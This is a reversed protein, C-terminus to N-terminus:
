PGTLLKTQLWSEVWNATPVSVPKAASISKALRHRSPM